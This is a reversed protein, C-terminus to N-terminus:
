DNKDAEARRMFERYAGELKLADSEDGPFGYAKNFSSLYGIYKAILDDGTVRQATLFYYDWGRSWLFRQVLLSKQQQPSLLDFEDSYKRIYEEQQKLYYHPDHMRREAEKELLPEIPLLTAELRIRQGKKIIRFDEPISLCSGMLSSCSRLPVKETDGAFLMVAGDPKEVLRLGLSVNFYPHSLSFSLSKWNNFSRIDPLRIVENSRVFFNDRYGGSFGFDGWVQDSAYVRVDEVPAKTKILIEVEAFKPGQRDCACLVLSLFLSM